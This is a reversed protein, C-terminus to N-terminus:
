FPVTLNQFPVSQNSTQQKLLAAKNKEKEQPLLRNNFWDITPEDATKLVTGSIWIM